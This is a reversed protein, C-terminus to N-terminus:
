RPRAYPFAIVDRISTAGTILMVARDVGLGLGGTPVLGLELTRLFDEDLSMAEPDGAAARLSQATFRKRQEGPDTLETYATGLEMGWAVLDWREALRPDHRNQRTLPSTEVPFDIYFTPKTTTAEVLEDYLAGIVDGSGAAVPVEIDNAEALELLRELPTDVTVEQGLAKSIAEHVSVVPWDGSIDVAVYDVGSRTSHVPLGETGPTGVARLVVPAGHVKIAAEQFIRQTLLRMTNYDGHAVYAELSTFEPNHTADVGENRFSRGIEFIAGMGAVALRKLFLEPAIRLYVDTSYANMRTIFPRANAGGHVPQLIPTEVEVYGQEGLTHRISTVIASRQAILEIANADALLQQTRTANAGLPITIEGHGGRRARPLATLAKALLQWGQVLISPEGTRTRMALGSVVVIDGRNILSRWMELQAGNESADFLLQIHKYGEVLDVFILGGHDRELGVRGEVRLQVISEEGAALQRFVPQVLAHAPPMGHKVGTPYPDIKADLTRELAVAREREEASLRRTPIQAQIHREVQQAVLAAYESGMIASNDVHARGFREFNPIFGELRGAALLVRAAQTGDAYCMYRPYWNPNYKANSEYLQELQWFHSAFRMIRAMTKAALSADVAMGDVFVSRFMAFNLSVRDVGYREGDTLLAAVMAENVGNPAKPSRRMVDLSVGRKGWPSFALLAVTKDDQDHVTVVLEREDVDDLTRDLAMSFGREEGNRWANALDRLQRREEHPIDGLRRIEVRAGSARVRRVAKAVQPLGRLSFSAAEIISEDGMRRVTFGFNKYARAGKEGASIVAPVWGYDGCEDLWASIADDWSAPDGLPDGAAMAVGTSLGFSVAAKGDPSFVALRDRRTAFYGLSDEEWDLLLGRVRLDDGARPTRKASRLFVTLSILVVLAALLYLLTGLWMPGQYAPVGGIGGLEPGLTRWAVWRMRHHIAWENGDPSHAPVVLLTGLAIVAAMGLVLTLLARWWSGRVIRGPFAPRSALLIAIVPICVLVWALMLWDPGQQAVTVHTREELDDPFQQYVLTLSGVTLFLFQLTLALNLALRKRRSAAGAWILLLVAGLFSAGVPIGIFYFPEVVLKYLNWRRLGLGGLLSLVAAIQLLRAMITPMSDIWRRTDAGVRRRLPSILKAPVTTSKPETM